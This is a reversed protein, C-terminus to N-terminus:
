PRLNEEKCCTFTISVFTCGRRAAMARYEGMVANGIEDSQFDTLVLVSDFTDRSVALADFVAARIACRLPQYDASSLPLISGAPDIRLHNHVPKGKFPELLTVLKHAITLKGIGPFGNIHVIPLTM